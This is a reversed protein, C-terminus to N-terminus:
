NESIVEEVVLNPVGAMGTMGTMGAMNSADNTAIPRCSDRVVLEVPMSERVPETLQGDIASLLLQAGRQGSEFLSQRVTTLGLYEAVDLDDYGIVSLDEPVRLGVDRAAQLVGIAQTDSAAFIATPRDPLALLRAATRRAEERSHRGHGLYSENVPIGADKLTHRYGEFRLLSAATASFVDDLVDSLYAIKHHGLSILHQTALRGGRVSDEMVSPLRPHVTDVLVVPVTSQQFADIQADTPTLTVIIVGDARDHRPVEAFFKDRKQLTEVNFVIMDYDSEAFV